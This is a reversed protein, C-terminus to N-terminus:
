ILKKSNFKKKVLYQNIAQDEDVNEFGDEDNLKDDKEVYENTKSRSNNKRM